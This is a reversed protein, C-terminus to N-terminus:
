LFSRIPLKSFENEAVLLRNEEPVDLKVFGIDLVVPTLIFDSFM